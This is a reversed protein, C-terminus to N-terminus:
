PTRSTADPSAASRTAPHGAAPAHDAFRGEAMARHERPLLRGFRGVGVAALGGLFLGGMLALVIIVPGPLQNSAVAESTRQLRLTPDRGSRRVARILGIERGLEGDGTPSQPRTRLAAIRRDLERAITRWRVAQVSGAFERALRVAAAPNRARATVDVLDRTESGLASVADRVSAATYTDGLRRAAESDIERSRVMEATTTPTRNPDGADRVLSTGLFTEDDQALPTILLKSTATYSPERQSLAVASAAVSALGALVVVPWRRVVDRVISRTVPAAEGHSTPPSGV